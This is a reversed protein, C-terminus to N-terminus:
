IQLLTHFVHWYQSLHPTQLQFAWSQSRMWFQGRPTAPAAVAAVLRIPGTCSWPAQGQQPTRAHRLHWITTRHM